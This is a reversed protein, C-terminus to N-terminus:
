SPIAVIEADAFEYVMYGQLWRSVCNSFWQSHNIDPGSPPKVIVKAMVIHHGPKSAPAVAFSTSLVGGIERKMLQLRYDVERAGPETTEVIVSIQYKM